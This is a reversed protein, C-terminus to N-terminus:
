AVNIDSGSGVPASSPSDASALKVVGCGRGGRCWHCGCLAGRPIAWWTQYGVHAVVGVATGRVGVCHLFLAIIVWDIM